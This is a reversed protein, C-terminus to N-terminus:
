KSFRVGHHEIMRQKIMQCFGPRQEALPKDLDPRKQDDPLAAIHEESFASEAVAKAAAGIEGPGAGGRLAALYVPLEDAVEPGLIARVDAETYVGAIKGEQLGLRERHAGQAQEYDLLPAPLRAMEMVYERVPRLYDDPIHENRIWSKIELEGPFPHVREHFDPLMDDGYLRLGIQTWQRDTAKDLKTLAGADMILPVNHGQADQVIAINEISCDYFLKGDRLASTMLQRIFDGAHDLADDIGYKYALSADKTLEYLTHVKPLVEIRFGEVSTTMTPQLVYSAKSRPPEFLTDVIRVMQHNNAEMVLAFRGGTIDSSIRRFGMKELHRVIAQREDPGADLGDATCNEIASSVKFISRKGLVRGPTKFTGYHTPALHHPTMNDAAPDHMPTRPGAVGRKLGLQALHAEQAKTYEELTAPDALPRSEIRKLSGPDIIVPVNRGEEDRLIAVNEAKLDTFAHGDSKALESMQALIPRVADVREQGEYGFEACLQKSAMIEQLTHVRPLVEIRCGEVVETTLPQLMYPRDPRPQEHEASVVRIIQDNPGELIYAYSGHRLKPGVHSFGRQQLHAIIAELKGPKSIVHTWTPHPHLVSSDAWEAEARTFVEEIPRLGEPCDKAPSDCPTNM